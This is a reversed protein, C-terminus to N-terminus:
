LVFDSAGLIVVGSLQIQFDAVRDGNIDGSILTNGGVFDYRLQGAVSTFAAGPLALLTFAQDGAIRSNADIGSLDILDAGKAFDLIVDRGTGNGAAATSLWAFVDNGGGGTVVNTGAGAVIRDAGSGAIINEITQLLDSGTQISSATGTVLNISLAASAQSFDLTDTGSGGIYSDNGDGAFAIFRDNGSGGSLTNAGTNGTMVNNSTNGSGNIALTGTLVLNEVNAALTVTVSARVTDDGGGAAELITIGTTRDVIYTDDGIGGALTDTGSVGGHLTDNGTGGNLVNNGSSGSIVDHGAGGTVNDINLLVDSGSESGSSTGAALNVTVAAALAALSYTDTGVGGEFVDNGDGAVALFLDNGSGGDVTDDGAGGIITDNGGLGNILDNGASGTLTDAAATGNLALGVKGTAASTVSEAFGQADVYSARVSLAAGLDAAVATYTSATAGSIAVGNRLWQLSVPSGNGDPDVGTTATLVQGTRAIGSISVAAAGDNVATITLSVTAPESTLAGDSARFTFSDAGAFGAAPTYTWTGNPALSLTGHAPGSVLAYTLADGNADTASVTGSATADEALTAASNGAVPAAAVLQARTFTGDDFLFLEIGSASDAGDTGVLSLSGDANETFAYAGRNGSFVATDSGAGGILTDNGAGGNLTDSGGGGNVTNDGGNGILTDNGNGGFVNEIDILTILGLGTAQAIGQVNLDVSIPSDIGFFAATDSGAGGDLTDTGGGGRGLLDNGAGGSLVNDGVDGYLEDDFATGIANEIGTLTDNEVGSVENTAFGSGLDVLVGETRSLDRSYDVTDLGAGGDLTDDGDGGALLDNGDLGQLVNATADGIITDNGLGGIVNEINALTDVEGSTQTALGTTLDVTVDSVAYTQNPGALAANPNHYFSVTDIGSRGDITDSGAGGVFLNDNADGSLADAFASGYVREISVLADTGGAGDSATGAQLDVTVGAAVLDYSIMDNGGRGNIVDNGAFGIFINDNADGSLTDNNNSGGLGEFGSITDTSGFSDTATGAELDAVVGFAGDLTAILHGFSVFDGISDGFGDILRASASQDGGVLTDNGRGGIISNDNDDGTITDNGQGGEVLEIGSFTDTGGYGDVATGAAMNIVMGQVQIFPAGGGALFSYSLIDFGAGGSITDSGFIDLFVNDNADFTVHDNGATGFVTEIGILTDTEGNWTASGAGNSINVVVGAGFLAVPLDYFAAVDSGAGGDLVDNGRGGTLNDAGDGGTLTDNGLGGNLTDNGTLGTLVNHNADGTLTDNFASGTVNEISILTDLGVGTNQAGALTLNVTVANAADAYSATDSDLGGILTDAGLGGTLTDDGDGGELVNNGADGTIQDDFVSGIVNELNLLTDVEGGGIAGGTGLALNVIVGEMRAEDGDDLYTLTDIGDGGDLTDDGAGGLLTDGGAGGDLTDNGGGGALVNASDDGTLTDDFNSGTINEISILTDNGAGGAATAGTTAGGGYEIIFANRVGDSSAIPSSPTSTATISSYTDDWAGYPMASRVGLYAYDSGTGTPNSFVGSNGGAGNEDVVYSLMWNQYTGNVSTGNSNGQWFQLAAEPGDIWRWVGEQAADSAGLWISGNDWGTTVGQNVLNSVFSNEAASTITVLYGQAGALSAGLSFNRAETWTVPQNRVEYVHGNGGLAPDWYFQTAPNTINAQTLPGGGSLTVTVGSTATSYDATDTGDGGDLTDNGAGGSLLDDGGLGSLVNAGGDGIITDAHASGIVNEISILQDAGAGGAASGGVAPMGGYEVLYPSAYQPFVDNWGLGGGLGAGLLHNISCYHLYNEATGSNPNDLVWDVFSGNAAAGVNSFVTGAEPGSAWTWVGEQGADSGGLWVFNYGQLMAEAFANEAASTITALYGQVGALSMSGAASLATHWDVSANVVEYIHGNGGLAPDWYFQTAPNTISAQTLPGAGSLTVTVGSTATSYDATDTGDGGDLTDNGLGGVLTDNGALGNLSDNGIGGTIVNNLDNGTGVFDGAGIFTLNEIASQGSTGGLGGFEVVAGYNHGVSGDDGWYGATLNNWPINGQITLYREGSGPYDPGNPQPPLAGADWNAYSGNVTSGNGGGQWFQQGAEPGDIWRWVGQAGLDNGGLWWGLPPNAPVNSWIFQQEADSTVTALYGRTGGLSQAQAMAFAQDWTGANLVYQYIHGNAPNFYQTAPNTIHAATLVTTSSLTYQNLTTRIEDTGSAANEVVVDSTSDVVYVDNGIGGSMTDAGSGGVLTDNGADGSLTDNGASGDLVNDGADGSLTDDFASGIVNEINLLQDSGAGGTASGGPVGTGSYEIIYAIQLGEHTDDWQGSWPQVSQPFGGYLFVFDSGNGLPGNENTLDYWTWHQSGVPVGGIGGSWFQQGAEPGAMWRWVGEEAADSGALWASNNNYGTTVKALILDRLFANEAASTSTALYGNLGGLMAQASRSMAESWTVAENRVEYIHGNGGLAPDWYFQTAPNTISAQTLPGAGSLTVMVGSTATSYDATDTGDGGDLIDNGPGGALMDNGSLGILSDNGAGGALINDSANGTGIFSAAGTYTLNEVHAGITYSALTTRIEDSGEGAYETIIDGSNSVVYIDDGTGGVLTNPAAGTSTNTFVSISNAGANAAIVEPLGDGNLDGAAAAYSLSPLALAQWTDAVLGGQGDGLVTIVSNPGSQTTAIVDLKGDANLDKLDISGITVGRNLSMGQTFSGSGNNLWVSVGSATGTVVDNDGDNDVDGVGLCLGASGFQQNALFSGNGANLLVSFTGSGINSVAVDDFGDGNFDRAFLYNPASGVQYTGGLNFSGTGNNLFVKVASQGDVPAVIDLAGDRNVDSLALTIVSSGGASFIVPAAYTGNGNGAIVAITGNYYHPTVLDLIGDRNVDGVYAFASGGGSPINQAPLLNGSGDNYFISVSQSFENGVLVDIQGDLNLDHFVVSVPWSGAPLVAPASLQFTPAGGGGGGGILTDNGAGGMLMDNGDGGDLTDNGAGGNLTDNGFRGQIVNDNDDGILNDAYDTGSLNEISVYSDGAAWGTNSSPDALNVTIGTNLIVNTFPAGSYDITDIGLLGLFLEVEDTAVFYDGADTGERLIPM